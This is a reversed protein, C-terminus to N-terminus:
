PDQTQRVLQSIAKFQPHSASECWEFLAAETTTVSAGCNQMRELATVHDFEARSGLADVALLVNFGMAMLDLTSQQVCVHTEIGTVLLHEIGADRLPMIQNACERCSFMTKEPLEPLRSRIASVTPGLGKPYQETALVNVGLLKAGDILRCINWVLRPHNVIAPVLKEQVDVVLLAANAPNMLQFSRPPFTTM